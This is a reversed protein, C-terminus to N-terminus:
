SVSNTSGCAGARSQPYGPRWAQPAERSPCRPSGTTRSSASQSETRLFSLRSREKRGQSCGAPRKTSSASTSVPRATWRSSRSCAGATAPSPSRPGTPESRSPHPLVLSSRVVPPTPTTSDRLWGWAALALAVGLAAVFPASSRHPAKPESATPPTTPASLEIRADGIDRLREKPNKVLCRGVLTRLTGPVSEYAPEDRLVSGLIDSVTEGEFAPRGTSAEYLCCGFAWVDTRKDVAKGRAQEPSMYAATGLIAGLATGRTLTPSQSVDAEPESEPGLGKALGFDLIKVRGEPTLKINAPKLDRHVVGSEHAAELGSAIQLFLERAEDEPIPGRAIREALTEGEVIEMALFATGDQEHFGYLHAIAPDNLSALLKAEREFRAGRDPDNALRDPLVKLAVERGLRADRARYVEGMGGAGLTELVVYDGLQAGRDLSM